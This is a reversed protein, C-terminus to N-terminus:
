IVEISTNHVLNSPLRNIHRNSEFDIFNDNIQFLTITRVLFYFVFFAIIMLFFMIGHYLEIIAEFYSSAPDQFSIGYASPVDANSFNEFFYNVL